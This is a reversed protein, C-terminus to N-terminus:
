GRERAGWGPAAVGGCIDASRTSRLCASLCNKSCNNSVLLISCYVTGTWMLASRLFYWCTHRSVLLPHPKGTMHCLISYVPQSEEVLVLEMAYQTIIDKHSAGGRTLSAVGRSGIAGGRMYLKGSRASEACIPSPLVKCLRHMM